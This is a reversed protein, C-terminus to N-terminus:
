SPTAAFTASLLNGGHAALTTVTVAIVLSLQSVIGLCVRDKIQRQTHAWKHLRQLTRLPEHPWRAHLFQLPDPLIAGLAGLLVVSQTQASAFLFLALMIGVLGDAGITLADQFLARDFRLPANIKPDVSASRIPYDWHPIADLAFHSAFGLAFAAAPHSPVFTAIAAGVLAHTSLIM